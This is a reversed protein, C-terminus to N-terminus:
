LNLRRGIGYYYELPKEHVVGFKAPDLQDAQNRVWDLFASFEKTPESGTREFELVFDQVLARIERAKRWDVLWTDLQEHRRKELEDIRRHEEWHPRFTEDERKKDARSAAWSRCSALVEELGDEVRTTETDEWQNPMPMRYYGGVYMAVRGTPMYVYKRDFNRRDTKPNRSRLTVERIGFALSEGDVMLYTQLDHM